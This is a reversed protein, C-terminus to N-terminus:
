TTAPIWFTFAHRSGGLNSGCIGCPSWSFTLEECSCESGRDGATQGADDLCGHHERLMGMTVEIGDTGQRYRELFAATEQETLNPDTEGNAHLILCDDCAWIPMSPETGPM